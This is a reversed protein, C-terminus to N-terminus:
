LAKKTAPYKSRGGSDSRFFEFEIKRGDKERVVKLQQRAEPVVQLTSSTAANSEDGFAGVLLDRGQQDGALEIGGPDAAKRENRISRLELEHRYGDPLALGQVAGVEDCAAVADSVPQIVQFAVHM